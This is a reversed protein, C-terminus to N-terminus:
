LRTDYMQCFYESKRLISNKESKGPFLIYYVIDSVLCFSRQDINMMAM